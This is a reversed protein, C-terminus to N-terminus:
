LGFVSIFFFDVVYPEFFAAMADIARNILLQKRIFHAAQFNHLLNRDLTSLQSSANILIGHRGYHVHRNSWIGTATCGYGYWETERM